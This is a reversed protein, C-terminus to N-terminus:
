ALQVYRPPRPGELGAIKLYFPTSRYRLRAGAPRAMGPGQDADRGHRGPNIAEPSAPFLSKATVRKKATKVATM